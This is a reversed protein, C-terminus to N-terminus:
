CARCHPPPHRSWPPTQEPPHRSRPRHRSRPPTQELPPTQEWPPTEAQPHRSRPSTQELPHRGRPPTQEWPTDARPLRSGPPDARPPHRGRSPTQEPPHPPIGAHVSASVGRTFLIVCARSFMVKGWSRQPRYFNFKLNDFFSYLQLTGIIVFLATTRIVFEM